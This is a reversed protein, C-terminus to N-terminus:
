WAQHGANLEANRQVRWLELGAFGALGPGRATSAGKPLGLPHGNTSFRSKNGRCFALGEDKSPCAFRLSLTFGSALLGAGM